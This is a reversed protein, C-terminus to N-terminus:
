SFGSELISWAPFGEKKSNTKLTSDNLQMAGHMMTFM